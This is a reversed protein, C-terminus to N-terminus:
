NKKNINHKIKINPNQSSLNLRFGFLFNTNKVKIVKIKIINSLFRKLEFFKMKREIRM